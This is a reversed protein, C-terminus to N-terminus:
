DHGGDAILVSGNVFSADDSALFLAVKAIEEPKAFRKVYIKETEEVVYDKPLDANMDTNIWGPAIANVRINPALEKAFNKTLVVVGAKTADYDIAEPSFTNIGNTSSINIINGSKNKMMEIAAYKSCMFTGTLNVSLTKNWDEMSKEFLPVDFVVGANNVLIDLRGFKEITEQIMNKVDSENSVDCKIAIVETGLGKIENVLSNIKEPDSNTYNLVINAGEKAFEIAIAKGIGRSSGTILAVKDKLKM